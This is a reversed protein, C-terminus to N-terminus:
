SNKKTTSVVVSAAQMQGNQDTYRVTVQDGTDASLASPSILKSGERIIADSALTVNETAKKTKVTLNHGNVKELTGTVSHMKAKTAPAAIAASAGVVAFAAILAAAAVFSTRFM